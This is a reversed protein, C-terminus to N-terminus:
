LRGERAAKASEQMAELSLRCTEREIEARRQNSTWSYGALPDQQDDPQPIRDRHAAIYRAEFRLRKEFESVVSTM